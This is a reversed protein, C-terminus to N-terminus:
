VTVNVAAFPSEPVAAVTMVTLSAPSRGGTTVAGEVADPFSPVSIVKVTVALSGSPLVIVDKVAALLGAVVPLVNVAPAPFVDPVNLQVGLKECAPVYVTVNVADVVVGAADPEAAVVIVTFLTSRAGTTVAGAVCVTFSPTRRLKVTVAASGSPSGIAENVAFEEGAVVPLVNVAPAPLVDPVNEHVGLKVCAPVYVTVNVAAFASEPVAVVVIVTFLTSRAGTTVAGAVTRPLSFSNILKVTVATSGSPWAIVENVAAEEGAVVPLVNVAPAPLVLPVKEHVGLKV